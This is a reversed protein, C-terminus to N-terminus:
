SKPANRIGAACTINWILSSRKARECRYVTMFGKASVALATVALAQSYQKLAEPSHLPDFPKLRAVVFKAHDAYAKDSHLTSEQVFLALDSVIARKWV